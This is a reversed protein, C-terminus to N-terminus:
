FDTDRTPKPNYDVIKLLTELIPTVLFFDGDCKVIDTYDFGSNWLYFWKIQAM